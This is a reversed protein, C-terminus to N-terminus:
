STSDWASDGGVHLKVWVNWSGNPASVDAQWKVYGPGLGDEYPYNEVLTPTSCSTPWSCSQFGYGPNSIYDYAGNVLVYGMNAAGARVSGWWGDVQCGTASRWGSGVATTCNGLALPQVAQGNSAPVQEPIEFGHAAVSGDAYREITYNFGDIVQDQEVTVPDNNEDYVDWPIGDIAKQILADQQSVPTSFRSMIDRLEKIQEGTPQNSVTSVTEAQAPAAFGLTSLGLVGLMAATLFKQGPKKNRIKM